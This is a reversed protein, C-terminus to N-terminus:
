FAVHGAVHEVSTEKTAYRKKGAGTRATEGIRGRMILATVGDEFPRSLGLVVAEFFGIFKSAPFPFM